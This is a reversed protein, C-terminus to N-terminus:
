FFNTRYISTNKKIYWLSALLELNSVAIEKM